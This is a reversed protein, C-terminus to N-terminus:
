QRIPRTASYEQAGHFWRGAEGTLWLYHDSPLDDDIGIFKYEGGGNLPVKSTHMCKYIATGEDVEDFMAVYLSKAGANKAGAIQKWLFDGKLRPFQDFKTPDSKLNGVSSGPFVLPVYDVNNEKCWAIDDALGSAVSEYNSNGYRGVAWPMVIDSKRIIDHIMPNNETDKTLTRWFYPLGLMISVENRKGKLATILDYTDQVTYKRGDSFGIGWVALLPRKNHRLLTPHKENDYLSFMEVLEAWDSKVKKIGETTQGSLDYMICIARGYKKAARLASELVRNFHAKGSENSIESVFRQMFVGDIGYDKMWKFHLDITEEDFPSYVYAPSNDAFFFSTQYTKEYEDMEPWFEITCNGPEFKGAKEYHHWKRNAGDGEANFWGQYGAMVLGNYSTFKCGTEDYKIDSLPPIPPFTGDGDDIVADKDACGFLCCMIAVAFYSKFKNM